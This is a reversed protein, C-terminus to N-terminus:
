KRNKTKIDHFPKNSVVRFVLTSDPLIEIQIKCNPGCYKRLRNETDSMILDGINIPPLSDIIVDGNVQLTAQPDTTGIGVQSFCPLTFLILVLAKM